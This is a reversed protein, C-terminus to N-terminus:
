DGPEHGQAGASALPRAAAPKQASREVPLRGGCAAEAARLVSSFDGAALADLPREMELGLNRSRLWGAVSSPRMAGSRILLAAIVRLDDLAPPRQSDGEKRWRSLTARSTGTLASLERDRLGLTKKFAQLQERLPTAEGLKELVEAADRDLFPATQPEGAGASEGKRHRTIM